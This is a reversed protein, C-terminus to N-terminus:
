SVDRLATEVAPWLLEQDRTLKLRQKISAIQADNLVSGPRSSNHREAGAPNQANPEATATQPSTEAAEPAAPEVATIAPASAVRVTYEELRPTSTAAQPAPVFAPKSQTREIPEPEEVPHVSATRMSRASLGTVLGGIAGLLALAVLVRFPMSQETTATALAPSMSHQAAAVERSPATNATSCTRAGFHDAMSESRRRIGSCAAAKFRRRPPTHLSVYAGRDELDRAVGRPKQHLTGAARRAAALVLSRLNRVPDLNKQRKSRKMSSAIRAARRTNARIM